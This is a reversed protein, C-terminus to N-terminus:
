NKFSSIGARLASVNWCPPFSDWTFLFLYNWLLAILPLVCYYSIFKTPLHCGAEFIAGSSWWRGTTGDKYVYMCLDNFVNCTRGHERKSWKSKPFGAATNHSCEFPRMSLVIALHHHFSGRALLWHQGQWYGIDVQWTSLSSQLGLLSMFSELGYGTLWAARSNQGVFVIHSYNKNHNKLSNLNSTM